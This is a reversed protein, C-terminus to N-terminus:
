HWIQVSLFIAANRFEWIESDLSTALSYQKDFNNPSQFNIKMQIETQIVCQYISLQHRPGPWSCLRPDSSSLVLAPDVSLSVSQWTWFLQVLSILSHRVLIFSSLRQNSRSRSWSNCRVLIRVSIVVSHRLGLWNNRDTAQEFVKVRLSCLLIGAIDLHWCMPLVNVGLKLFM